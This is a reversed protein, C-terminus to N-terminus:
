GAFRHSCGTPWERRSGRGRNGARSLRAALGQAYSEAASRADEDWMPNILPGTDLGLTPDYLWLPLPVTARVLVLKAGSCHALPVAMALAHAGAPTGDVPGARYASRKARAPKSAAAPGTDREPATRSGRRQRLDESRPGHPWAHGHHHRRLSGRRCMGSHCRSRRGSPSERLSGSRRAAALVRNARYAVPGRTSGPQSDPPVVTLLTFDAGENAALTSAVPLIAEALESGDLPILLHRLSM